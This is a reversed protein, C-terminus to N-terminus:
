EAASKAPAYGLEAFIEDNHEGLGAAPNRHEAAM